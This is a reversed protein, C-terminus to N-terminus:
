NNSCVCGGVTECNLCIDSQAKGRGYEELANIIANKIDDKSRNGEIAYTAWKEALLNINEM